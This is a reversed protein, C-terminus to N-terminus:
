KRTSHLLCCSIFGDVSCFCVGLCLSSVQPQRPPLPPLPISPSNPNLYIGVIGNLISLCPPGVACCLSSYGTEQSLVHHFIIYSLLHRDKYLQTVTSYLLYQYLMTLDVISKKTRKPGCGCCISTGLSPTSYGVGCGCCCLTWSM